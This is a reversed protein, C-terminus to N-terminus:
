KKHTPHCASRYLFRRTKELWGGNTKNWPNLQWNTDNLTTYQGHHQLVMQFHIHNREAAQVIADWSQAVPLLLNGLPLPPQDALPWDLNKGDWYNMWIRTWNVGAKGMRDLSDVLPPMEIDGRSRWALNYGVPYFPTGDDFAFRMKNKPDIRVFHNDIQNQVDFETPGIETANANKGNLTITGFKYKGVSDPMYRARWTTGGDFFAPISVTSGTPTLVMVQVDNATFDFPNGQLQPLDFQLEIRSATSVAASAPQGAIAALCTILFGFIQLHTFPKCNKRNTM